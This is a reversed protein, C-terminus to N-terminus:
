DDTADEPLEGGEADGDPNDEFAEDTGDGNTDLPEPVEDAEPRLLPSLWGDRNLGVDDPLWTSDLERSLSCAELV